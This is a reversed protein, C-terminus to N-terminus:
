CVRSITFRHLFFCEKSITFVHVAYDNRFMHLPKFLFFICPLYRSFLAFMLLKCDFFSDVVLVCIPFSSFSFVVFYYRTFCRCSFAFIFLASLAIFKLCLWYMLTFSRILNCIELLFYIYYYIFLIIYIFLLCIFLHYSYMCLSSIDWCFSLQFRLDFLLFSIM